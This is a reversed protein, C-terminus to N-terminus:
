STDQLPTAVLLLELASIRRLVVMIGDKCRPCRLLGAESSGDCDAPRDAGLLCRIRAVNDRRCRNALFGYHRIRVFGAPLVHLLFRRLFEGAELTMSRNRGGRAYDKYRFTVRGDRLQVLRRNAIATRHTYRALYALVQEPGAMPPKAYVVWPKAYLTSLLSRFAEPRALHESAGLLRLQDDRYARALYDLFKGRFLAALVKVPAFYGARSSVWGSGDPRLGGGPLIVHLHPHHQLTQGWTHLLAIFGTKAGLHRSDGGVELLTESAAKFLIDYLIKPNALALAALENPLTFVLHFYAVPLLDRRRAEYWRARSSAGCKPCHRNRCSNYSIAKHDCTNCRDLHAGLRASRCDIVARLARRQRASMAIGPLRGDRDVLSRAVDAVELPPRAV